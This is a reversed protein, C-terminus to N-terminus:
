EWIIGDTNNPFSISVTVVRKQEGSISINAGHASADQELTRVSYGLAYGNNNNREQVYLTTIDKFRDASIHIQGNRANLIVTSLLERIVPAIGAKDKALEMGRSVENIVLTKSHFATSMSNVLLQNVLLQLSLGRDQNKIPRLRASPFSDTKTKMASIM